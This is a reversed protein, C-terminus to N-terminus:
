KNKNSKKEVEWKVGLFTQLKCLNITSITVFSAFKWASSFNFISFHFFAFIFHLLGM